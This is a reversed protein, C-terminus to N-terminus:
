LQGSVDTDSITMANAIAAANGILVFIPRVLSAPRICQIGPHSDPRTLLTTNQLQRCCYDRALCNFEERIAYPKGRRQSHATYCVPRRTARISNQRAVCANGLISVTHRSIKWMVENTCASPHSVTEEACFSAIAPETATVSLQRHLKHFGLKTTKNDHLTSCNGANSGLKGSNTRKPIRHM